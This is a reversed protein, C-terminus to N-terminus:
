GMNNPNYCIWRFSCKNSATRPFQNWRYILLFNTSTFTVVPWSWRFKDFSHKWPSNCDDIYREIKFSETFIVYIDCSILPSRKIKDNHYFFCFLVSLWTCNEYSWRMYFDLFIICLNLSILCSLLLGLLLVPRWKWM